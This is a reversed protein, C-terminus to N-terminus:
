FPTDATPDVTAEEADATPDVKADPTSAVPRPSLSIDVELQFGM